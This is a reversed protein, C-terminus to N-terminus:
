LNALPNRVLGRVRVEWYLRGRPGLEGVAHGAEVTQGALINLAGLGGLVEEHGDAGEVIVLGGFQRFGEAFLIKGTLPSKVV